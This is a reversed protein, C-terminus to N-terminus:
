KEVPVSTYVEFNDVYFKKPNLFQRLKRTKINYTFAQTRDFLLFYLNNKYKNDLKIKIIFDIFANKM